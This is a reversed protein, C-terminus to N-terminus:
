PRVFELQVVADGVNLPKVRDFGLKSALQGTWTTYASDEVSAGFEYNRWFESYNVSEPVWWALWSHVMLGNVEFHEVTSTVFERAFLDPFVRGNRRTKLSVQLLGGPSCTSEMIFKYKDRGMTESEYVGVGERTVGIYMRQGSQGQTEVLGGGTEGIELFDIGCKRTFCPYSGLAELVLSM